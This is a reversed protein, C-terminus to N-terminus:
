GGAQDLGANRHGSEIDFRRSAFRQLGLASFGRGGSGFQNRFAPGDHDRKVIRRLNSLQEIFEPLACEEGM